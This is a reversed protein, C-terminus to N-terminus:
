FQVRVSVFVFLCSCVCVFVLVCLCVPVCVFLCFCVCLCVSVCVCVFLFVCRWGARVCKGSGSQLLFLSCSLTLEAELGCGSLFRGHPSPLFSSMVEQPQQPLM